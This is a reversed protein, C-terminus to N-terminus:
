HARNRYRGARPGLPSLKRDNRKWLLPLCPCPSSWRGNSQRLAHRCAQLPLRWPHRRANRRGSARPASIVLLYLRMLRLSGNNHDVDPALQAFWELILDSFDASLWTTHRTSSSGNIRLESRYKNAESPIADRAKSLASVKRAWMSTCRTASTTRSM